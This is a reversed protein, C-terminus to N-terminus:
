HDSYTMKSEFVMPITLGGPLNPNDKIEASGSINQGIKSEIIWGTKNDVKITSNITGSLNYKVPMGNVQIYADKDATEMKGNGTIMNYNDAAETYQYTTRLSGEMVTELQNEVTWTDGTKVATHPYIATVMEFNSKFSKEGFAQMLQAKIQQRQATVLKTNNDLIDDFVTDLNKVQIIRGEKTMTILFSKNKIFALIASVIDASDNKESSFSREGQPSKISLSLQLYNVSMEYASDKVGTVTFATKGTISMAITNEQGNIQEQVTSESQMIHYYTEGVQLNFGIEHKQAFLHLATGAFFLLLILKRM